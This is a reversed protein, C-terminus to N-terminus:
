INVESFVKLCASIAETTEEKIFFKAVPQGDGNNDKVLLHYLAFGAKTIRYTGDLEVVKGYKKYLKRQKDLQIYIAVVEGDANHLVKVVHKEEVDLSMLVDVTDRWENESKGLLKSFNLIHM